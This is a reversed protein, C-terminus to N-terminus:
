GRWETTLQMSTQTGNFTVSGSELSQIDNIGLNLMQEYYTHLTLQSANSSQTVNSGVFGTFTTTSNIGIGILSTRSASQQVNQDFTISTLGDQLGQFVTAKNASAANSARVTASNYLWSATADGAQLIIRRQNFANWLGWKRSQGWARHCTVQGAAADMFISGVYTALNAGISFTSSGNRGTMSVANVLVGSIRTLQTTSAGTGRAGAGATSTTWAPGTVLTLVGSNSFVFLDYITSAAHSAVLSLALESFATPSFTAGNYIPILNGTDPTYFVQTAAVVDSTIAPTGSTLTLYGQPAPVSPTAASANIATWVTTSADGTVTAVYLIKATYDWYFTPLVGASGATGAVVGTPSGSGPITQVVTQLDTGYYNDATWVPSLPPDTDTASALVVKYAQNKLFIDTSPYGSANLVVPNTNPVTEASDSYTDLKTSTGAVYFFLKAGALVQPISNFFQPFPNSFRASM